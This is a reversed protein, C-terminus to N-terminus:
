HVAAPWILQGEPHRHATVPESLDFALVSRNTETLDFASSRPTRLFDFGLKLWNTRGSKTKPIVTTFGYVM